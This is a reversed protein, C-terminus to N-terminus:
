KNYQDTVSASTSRTHLLVVNEKFYPLIIHSFYQHLRKIYFKTGLLKRIQSPTCYFSFKTYNLVQFM